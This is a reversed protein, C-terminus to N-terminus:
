IRGALRLAGKEPPVIVCLHGSRHLLACADKAQQESSFGALRARFLHEGRSPKVVEAAKEKFPASRLAQQAQAARGYAGLQISWRETQVAAVVHSHAPAPARLSAHEIPAAEARGIPSLAAMVRVAKAVLRHAGSTQEGGAEAVLLPDTARHAFGDDLLTAMLQDRAGGSEGGMVVGFLRHDGRVASSALNFGSASTFGTKLGDMGPYRYMLHNHGYITRGRFDFERTSFYHYQEPFKEYLAMALKVLDRATTMQEDDPLGAANRFTTSTMGLEHAKATMLRAFGTETGGLAEGMVTAADNASLVIMGLVCDRVSVNDGARLGLKTPMKDAAWDSVPLRQDWRLHDKQMADFALYLTMM